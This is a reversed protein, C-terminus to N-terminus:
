KTHTLFILCTSILGVLFMSPGVYRIKQHKDWFGPIYDPFHSFGLKSEIILTSLLGAVFVQVSVIFLLDLKTM